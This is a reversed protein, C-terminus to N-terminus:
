RESSELGADTDPEYIFFSYVIVLNNDYNHNICTKKINNINYPINKDLEFSKEKSFKSSM